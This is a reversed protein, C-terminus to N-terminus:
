WVKWKKRYARTIMKGAEEDGVIQEAKPDWKITRKTQAAVNVMHCITDCRIGMEVPCITEARSKVCDIFNRCHEGSVYLKEEDAKLERKWLTQDSAYFAGFYFDGIWGDTGHFVV